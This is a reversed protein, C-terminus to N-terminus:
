PKEGGDPLFRWTEPEGAANLELEDDSLERIDGPLGAACIVDDLRKNGAFCQFDLLAQLRKETNEM